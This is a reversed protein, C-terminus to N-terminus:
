TVILIYDFQFKHTLIQVSASQNNIKKHSISIYNHYVFSINVTFAKTGMCAPNYRLCRFAYINRLLKQFGDGWKNYKNKLFFGNAWATTAAGIRFSHSKYNKISLGVYKLCVQLQDTFFKRSVVGNNMFSFLPQEKKTEHGRIQLYDWLAKVPCMNGPLENSQVLLVPIHKGSSHKFQSTHIEVASPTNTRDFIFKVNGLALSNGKPPIPGTIEGIRLFAHFALLYMAKLLVSSGTHSLSEILGKLISPTIPLRSDKAKKLNCYGRLTKTVIFHQTM